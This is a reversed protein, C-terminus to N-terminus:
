LFHLIVQFIDRIVLINLCKIRLQFKKHLITNGQIVFYQFTVVVSYRRLGPKLGRKKISIKLDDHM